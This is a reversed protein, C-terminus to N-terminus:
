HMALINPQSTCWSCHNNTGKHMEKTCSSFKYHLPLDFQLVNSENTTHESADWHIVRCM